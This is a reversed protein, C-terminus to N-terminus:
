GHRYAYAIDKLIAYQQVDSLGCWMKRTCAPIREAHKRFLRNKKRLMNSFRRREAQAIKATAAENGREYMQAKLKDALLCIPASVDLVGSRLERAIVGGDEVWEPRDHIFEQRVRAAVQAVHHLTSADLAAGSFVELAQRLREEYGVHQADAYFPARLTILGGFDIKEM